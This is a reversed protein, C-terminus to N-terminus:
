KLKKHITISCIWLLSWQQHRMLSQLFSLVSDIVNVGRRHHDFVAVKKLAHYYLLNLDGNKPDQTDAVVLLTNKTMLEIAM